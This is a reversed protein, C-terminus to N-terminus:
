PYMRQRALSDETREGANATAPVAMYGRAHVTVIRFDRCHSFKRRLKCIYTDVLRLNAVSDMGWVEDVLQTRTFARGPYSLLKYLLQFEIASLLIVKGSVSVSFLVPDLELSGVRIRQEAEGTSRRLLARVRMLLEDPVIPKDMYDDKGLRFAIDKDSVGGKEMIFLFPTDKGLMRVSRAFTDSEPLGAEAVIVGYCKSRIELLADETRLCSTAQFGSNNLHDCISRNFYTNEGFVLIPTM